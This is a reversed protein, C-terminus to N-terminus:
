IEQKVPKLLGKRVLKTALVHEILFSLILSLIGIETNGHWIAWVGYLWAVLGIAADLIFDILTMISLKM